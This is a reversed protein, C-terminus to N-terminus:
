FRRDKPGKVKRIAAAVVAVLSFAGILGVYTLPQLGLITNSPPLQTVTVVIVITHSVNAGTFTTGLATLTVNHNGLVSNVDTTLTMTSVSSNGFDLAVSPSSFAEKAEFSSSASLNVKGKFYDISTLILTFTRSQGPQVAFESGRLLFRFDPSPPKVFVTLTHSSSQSSATINVLYVFPLTSDPTHIDLVTAAPSNPSITLDSTALSAALGPVAPKAVSLWVPGSFGSQSGLSITSNGSTTAHIELIAPSASITFDPKDTTLIPLTITHSLGNSTALVTITYHSAQYTSNAAITMTVNSPHDPSLTTSTMNLYLLLGPDAREVALVVIGFYDGISSVTLTVNAKSGIVIQPFDPSATLSFGEGPPIGYTGDRITVSVPNDGNAIVARLIQLLSYSGSRIVTYNITFLLGYVSSTPPNEQQAVAASHVVGPGDSSNCPSTTYNVGNICSVIEFVKESYNAELANGRISLSIPSIVSQNSQVQIDWGTFPDVGAVQVQVTVVTSASDEATTAHNMYVLGTAHVSHFISPSISVLSALSLAILLTSLRRPAPVEEHSLVM